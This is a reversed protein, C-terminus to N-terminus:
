GKRKLVGSDLYRMRNKEKDKTEIDQEKKMGKAVSSFQNSMSNRCNDCYRGTMIKVGCRECEIGIPSDPSVTLRGERLYNKVQKVTVNTEECVTAMPAGPNDYLYAKVRQFDDEEKRKCSQCLPPGVIHHFLGGCRRCTKVEM